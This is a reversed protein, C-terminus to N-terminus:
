QKRYNAHAVYRPMPTGGAHGSLRGVRESSRLWFAGVQLHRWIIIAATQAFVAALKRDLPSPARPMEFYM